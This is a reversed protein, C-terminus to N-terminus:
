RGSYVTLPWDHDESMESYLVGEDISDHHSRLDSKTRYLGFAEEFDRARDFKNRLGEYPPFAGGFGIVRRSNAVLELQESTWSPSVYKDKELCDLPQFRMPYAVVGWDLLNRVREFLDEPTDHFNFLVYCMIKRRRVGISSLNEIARQVARGMGPFDYALRIYPMKLGRLSEAVEEKLFRADLGQNFDVPLNIEKLEEIVDRWNPEGLINNDWLVVRRHNEHILHRFSRAQRIQFPKGELRPVSCFECTRICGRQTFLISAKRKASWEPALGYDPLLDEAERVLGTVVEHAGSGRAHEPMLSSYIGGLRVTVKPFLARYFEICEWVPKWAWTFLSTVDIQDPYFDTILALGRVLRVEHGLQKYYTSLKLLGLPPYQTYYKPEVLLVRM